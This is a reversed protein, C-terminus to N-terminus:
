LKHYTSSSATCGKMQKYLYRNKTSRSRSLTFTLNSLKKIEIFFHFTSIEYKQTLTMESVLYTESLSLIVSIGKLETLKLTAFIDKLAILSFLIRAFLKLLCRQLTLFERGIDTFSVTIEGNQSPKIKSFSRMLQKVRFIFGEQFNGFNCYTGFLNSRQSKSYVFDIGSRQM